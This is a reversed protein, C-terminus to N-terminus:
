KVEQGTLTYTKDGRLIYIQGNRLVKETVPSGYGVEEINTGPGPDASAFLKLMPMEGVQVWIEEARGAQLATATTGDALQNVNAQTGQVAGLANLYYNSADIDIASAYGGGFVSSFTGSGNSGVLVNTCNFEATLLSNRVIIRGDPLGVFGGWAVTRNEGSISGNFICDSIHLRNYYCLKGIIGGILSGGLYTDATNEWSSVINM